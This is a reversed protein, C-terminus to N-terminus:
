ISSKVLDPMADSGPTSLMVACEGPSVRTLVPVPQDGFNQKLTGPGRTHPRHVETKDFSKGGRAIQAKRRYGIYGTDDPGKAQEPTGWQELRESLTQIGVDIESLWDMSRQKQFQWANTRIDRGGPQTEMRANPGYQNIGVDHTPEASKGSPRVVTFRPPLGPHRNHGLPNCRRTTKPREVIGKQIKRHLQAPGAGPTGFARQVFFVAVMRM